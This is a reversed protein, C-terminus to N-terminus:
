IAVPWCFAGASSPALSFSIACVCCRSTLGGHDSAAPFPACAMIRSADRRRQQRASCNFPMAAKNLCEFVVDNQNGFGIMVELAVFGLELLVAASLSFSLVSIADADPESAVRTMNTSSLETTRKIIRM